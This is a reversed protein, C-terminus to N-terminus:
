PRGAGKAWNKPKARAVAAYFVAQKNKSSVRLKSRERWGNEEIYNTKKTGKERKSAQDTKRQKKAAQKSQEIENRMDHATSANV